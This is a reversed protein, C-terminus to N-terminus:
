PALSEADFAAATVREYVELYRRAMRRPAYRAARRRARRALEDRVADDGALLRLAAALADSDRPAVYLAADDWVERLSPIDGVVLTCGALAAELISLGFPEYRAPAAFVAARALHSEVEERSVRGTASGDGLLVVPWPVEDRVRELAAVNKAEDWFRGMGLVFPEKKEERRPAARGNPVVFRETRFSYHRDLADLMARTPAVVAEAARLGAEVSLRYHEWEPPAPEEKVAEWWSLVCSHAVVVVPTEWPLCGHVYGNLHVVDPRVREELELLWRGASELDEWPDDEWELAFASEHLGAVASRAVEARQGADLPRGMTAVEVEVGYAALADALELAYTWVGGVTDATMLIRM